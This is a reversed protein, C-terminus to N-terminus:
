VGEDSANIRRTQNSESVMEINTKSHDEEMRHSRSKQIRGWKQRYQAMKRKTCLSELTEAPICLHNKIVQSPTITWIKGNCLFIPEFYARFAKMKTEPTLSSIIMIMIRGWKQSYQAMKRKTCLNELTEAPICLHNKRSWFTNNDLNQWHLLFYAWFISEISENKSRSNIKLQNSAEIALIERWKIDEGTDRM